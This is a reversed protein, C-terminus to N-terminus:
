GARADLRAQQITRDSRATRTAKPARGLANASVDARGDVQSREAMDNWSIRISGPAQGCCDAIPYGRYAPLGNPKVYKVM